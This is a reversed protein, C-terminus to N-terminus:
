APEALWYDATPRQTQANIGTSALLDGEIQYVAESEDRRIFSHGSETKNGIFLTLIPKWNGDFLSVRFTNQHRMGFDSDAARDPTVLRGESYRIQRLLHNVKEHDVSANSLDPIKWDQENTRKAKVLTVLLHASPDEAPGGKGIQIKEIQNIDFKFRVTSPATRLPLFILAAFIAVAILLIVWLFIAPKTIM